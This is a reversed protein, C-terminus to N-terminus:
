RHEVFNFLNNIQINKNQSHKTVLRFSARVLFKQTENLQLAFKLILGDIAFM